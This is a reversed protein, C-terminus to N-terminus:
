NVHNNRFNKVLRNTNIGLLANTSIAIAKTEGNLRVVQEVDGLNTMVLSSGLELLLENTLGSNDWLVTSQSNRDVEILNKASFLRQSLKNHLSNQRKLCLNGLFDINCKISSHGCQRCSGSGIIQM